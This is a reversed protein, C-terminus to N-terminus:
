KGSVDGLGSRRLQKGVLVKVAVIQVNFPNSPSLMTAKPKRHPKVSLEVAEDM